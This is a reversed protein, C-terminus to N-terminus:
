AGSAGIEGRRPQAAPNPSRCGAFRDITVRAHYYRTEPAQTTAARRAYEVLEGRRALERYDVEGGPAFLMAEVGSSEAYVYVIHPSVDTGLLYWQKGLTPLHGQVAEMQALVETTQGALTWRSGVAIPGCAKPVVLGAFSARLCFFAGDSCDDLRSSHIGANLWRRGFDFLVGDFVHVGREWNSPSAQAPSPGAAAPFGAGLVLAFVGAALGLTKM